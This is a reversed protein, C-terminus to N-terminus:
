IEQFIIYSNVDFVIRYDSCAVRVSDENGTLAMTPAAVFVVDDGTTLGGDRGEGYVNVEEENLQVWFARGALDYEANSVHGKMLMQYNGAKPAKIHYELFVTHDNVPNIKGSSITGTSGAGCDSFKIKVGVKNATADTLPIYEKGDANTEPAGDAWTRPLPSLLAEDIDYSPKSSESSESVEQSSSSRSSSSQRSSSKSSSSAVSSSSKFSPLNLACGAITMSLLVALAGFLKKFKMNIEKYTKLQNVNYIVDLLFAVM